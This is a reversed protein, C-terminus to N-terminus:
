RQVLIVNRLNTHGNKALACNLVNKGSGGADLDVSCAVNSTTSGGDTLTGTIFGTSPDNPTTYTITVSTSTNLDNRDIEYGTCNGTSDCVMKIASQDNGSDNRYIFGSYTGNIDALTINDKPIAITIDNLDHYAIAGGSASLYGKTVNGNSATISLIGNSCTANLDHSQAISSFGNTLAYGFPVDFDNTSSDYTFTGFFDENADSTDDNTKVNIWNADLSSPCTGSTIMSITDGSGTPKVFLAYGPVELAYATDGNNVNSNSSSTINLELFNNPLTIYTGNVDFDPSTSTPNLRYEISFTNSTSNITTDWRGPMNNASTLTLNTGGAGVYSYITDQNSSKDKNDGGCAVMLLGVTTIIATTLIFRKKM